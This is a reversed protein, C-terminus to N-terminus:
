YFFNLLELSNVTFDVPVENFTVTITQLQRTFTPQPGMYDYGVGDSVSVSHANGAIDFYAGTNLRLTISMPINANEWVLSGNVSYSRGSGAFDEKNCFGGPQWRNCAVTISDNTLTTTNESVTIVFETKVGGNARDAAAVITATPATRDVVVNYATSSLSEVSNLTARATIAHSGETVTGLTCAFDGSGDATCASGSTTGNVYVQVSAQPTASGQM